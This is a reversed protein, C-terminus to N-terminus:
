IPRTKVFTNHFVAIKWGESSRMFIASSLAHHEGATPGQPVKLHADMHGLAVDNTLLRADKLSIANVSGAYVTRFIKNHSEAIAPRGKHQMGFVTVFDADETFSEGYRTGDGANWADMLRKVVEELAAHDAASLSDSM